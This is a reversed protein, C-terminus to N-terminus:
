PAGALALVQRAAAHPLLRGARVEPRLRDLLAGVDGRGLFRALVRQHLEQDLWALAQGARRRQLGGGDCLARHRQEVATWLEDLGAGTVSSATSVTPADAGRLVPLATACQQRVREAAAQLDGDAKHVVVLDCLEMAGRKIGQLEDGAAPSLLLLFLDVMGAVATESQGTGVTEVLVVDHGAAECLLMAERTRRAVGGPTDGSPSPRIFARPERALATMRTKDGLISGGSVSSSPDVALVAVRRGARCLRMGLAEIFTSKGVGPAGTIGLRLANGTHPLLETLLAEGRAEDEPRRSEVLTIARALAQRDGARIAAATPASRTM